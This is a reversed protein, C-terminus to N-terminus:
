EIGLERRLEYVEKRLDTLEDELFRLRKLEDERSREKYQGNKCKLIEDFFDNM